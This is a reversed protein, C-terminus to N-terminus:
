KRKLLSWIAKWFRAELLMLKAVWEPMAFDQQLEKASVGRRYIAALVKWLVWSEFALVFIFLANRISSLEEILFQNAEPVILSAAFLGIGAIAVCRLARAKLGLESSFLVLYLVPMFLCLDVLAVWEARPYATWDLWQAFAWEIAIAIPLVLIFFWKENPKSLSFPM